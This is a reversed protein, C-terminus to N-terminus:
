KRLRKNIEQIRVKVISDRAKEVAEDFRLDCLSDIEVRLLITQQKALTDVMKLHAAKLHVPDKECSTAISFFILVISFSLIKFTNNTWM